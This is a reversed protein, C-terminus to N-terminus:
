QVGDENPFGNLHRALPDESSDEMIKSVPWPGKVPTQNKAIIRKTDFIVRKNFMINNLSEPNLQTNGLLPSCETYDSEKPFVSIRITRM